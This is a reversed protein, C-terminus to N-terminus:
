IRKTLTKIHKKESRQQNEWQDAQKQLENIKETLDSKM